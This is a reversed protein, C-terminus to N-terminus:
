NNIIDIGPHKKADFVFLNDDFSANLSINNFSIEITSNTKDVVAARSVLSTSKNIYLTIQKFSQRKDLPTLGVQYSNGASSVLKIDFDRKNFGTLIQQPSFDNDDKDVKAVTVENQGDFNWIQIGNCYIESGGQNIYYKDGKMKMNGKSASVVRNQQDKQTLSFSVNIGKASRVKAASKDLIGEASTNNQSFAPLFFLGSVFLLLLSRKM